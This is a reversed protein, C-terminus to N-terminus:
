MVILIYENRMSTWETMLFQVCVILYICLYYLSFTQKSTSLIMTKETDTNRKEEVFHKFVSYRFRQNLNLKRRISLIHAGVRPYRM